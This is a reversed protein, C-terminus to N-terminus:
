GVKGATRWAIRSSMARGGGCRHGCQRFHIQLSRRGLYIQWLLALSGAGYLMRHLAKGRMTSLKRSRKTRNSVQLVNSILYLNLLDEISSHLQLVVARVIDDRKRELMFAYNDREDSDTDPYFYRDIENLERILRKIKGEIYKPKTM